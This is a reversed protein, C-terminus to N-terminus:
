NSCFLNVIGSVECGRRAARVISQNFLQVSKGADHPYWRWDFVVVKISSKASEILPIVIKPFQSGSIIQLM